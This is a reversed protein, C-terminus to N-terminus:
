VLIGRHSSSLSCRNRSSSSPHTARTQRGRCKSHCICTSGAVVQRAQEGLAVLQWLQFARRFQAQCGVQESWGSGV